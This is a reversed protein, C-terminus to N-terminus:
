QKAIVPHQRGFLLAVADAHVDRLTKRPRRREREPDRWRRTKHSKPVEAAMWNITSSSAIEGHLSNHLGHFFFRQGAPSSITPSRCQGDWV